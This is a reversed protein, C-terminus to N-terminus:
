ASNLRNIGREPDTEFKRFMEQLKTKIIGEHVPGVERYQDIHAIVADTLKQQGVEKMISKVTKGCYEM